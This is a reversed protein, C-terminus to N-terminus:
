VVPQQAAGPQPPTEGEPTPAPQRIFAGLDVSLNGVRGLYAFIKTVDFVQMAEANQIIAYLLQWLIESVREAEMSEIGSGMLKSVQEDTLQEVGIPDYLKLNRYGGMRSPLMLTSDLVRLVTRMARTAGQVVQTVQNKVARDIGAVQNPMNQSPFFRDRLGLSSNVGDLAGDVGSATSVDAIGTRVDRGQQKSEILGTVDGKKFKSTDLMSPDVVKLGYVNNRMGAIYLNYMASGFRQFGKQLEMASRQAEKLQDQTLFALYFPLEAKEGGIFAERDMLPKADVVRENVIKFNWIELFTDPEVGSLKLQDEEAKTLLGFQCPILWICMDVVEFGDVEPGLDTALGIGYAGWNVNQQGAQKANTTRSDQGEEGM